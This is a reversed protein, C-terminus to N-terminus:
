PKGKPAFLDSRIITSSVAQQQPILRAASDALVKPMPMATAPLGLGRFSASRYIGALHLLTPYVDVQGMADKYEGAVPSNLVILPVHSEADVLRAAVESGQRIERRWSALAEHDGVIAIMTNSADPRSRLYGIFAGLASDTYNIATIYDALHPPYQGKLNIRRFQQPITFPFHSSYTIVQVFATQWVPWIQGDQMAEAVQRLFSGDSPNRPHGFSESADWSDRFRAHDFGFAPAVAGQNWTTARDGSLLYTEAGKAAKLEKALHPYSHDPFRMSYVYDQLPRMGAAMLLQGDISRGPGVQSVVRRAIWTHASDAIFSNLCPTIEQGEIRAGLPWAELSEVFILVLNRRPAAITDMPLADTLHRHSRLYAKAQAMEAKSIPRSSELADALISIPLTYAVPPTARYYCMNKLHRIHKLPMQTFLGAVLCLAALGGATAAFAGMTRRGPKQSRPGMLVLTAATVILFVIDSWRLSLRIADGFEAVNGVLLYSAPPIPMFYTRCYMLNAVALADAVILVLAFPLRSRLLASLAMVLAMGAAYLYTQAIGLGRFSTCLSWLLDFTLITALSGLFAVAFRRSWLARPFIRSIIASFSM